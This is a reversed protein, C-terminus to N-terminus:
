RLILLTANCQLSSVLALVKTRSMQQTEQCSYLREIALAARPFGRLLRYSKLKLGNAYEQLFLSQAHIMMAKFVCEFMECVLTVLPKDPEVFEPEAVIIEDELPAPNLAQQEAILNEFVSVEGREIEKNVQTRLCM